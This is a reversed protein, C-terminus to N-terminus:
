MILCDQTFFPTGDEFGLFYKVVSLSCTGHSLHFLLISGTFLVVFKISYDTPAKITVAHRKCLSDAVKYPYPSSLGNPTPTTFDFFLFGTM